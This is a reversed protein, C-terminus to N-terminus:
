APELESDARQKSERLQLSPRPSNRVLLRHVNTILELINFPKEMLCIAHPKTTWNDLAERAIAPYGTMLMASLEPHDQQLFQILSLGDLDPMVMDSILLDPATQRYKEIAEIGSNATVISYGSDALCEVILEVASSEDDVVLITKNEDLLDISDGTHTRNPTNM